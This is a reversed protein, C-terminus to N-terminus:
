GKIWEGNQKMMFNDTVVTYPKGTKKHIYKNTM